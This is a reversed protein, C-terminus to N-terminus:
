GTAHADRGRQRGRDRFIEIPACRGPPLKRLKSAVRVPSVGTGGSVDDRPAIPSLQEPPTRSFRILYPHPTSGADDFITRGPPLPAHVHHRNAEAELQCTQRDMQACWAADPSVPEM